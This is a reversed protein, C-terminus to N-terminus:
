VLLPLFLTALGLFFFFGMCDTVTTVFVGSALAPDINLRKLIVPVLYGAINAALMNLIMALGAVLGFWPNSAFWWAGFAVIIGIVIGSLLGVTIEKCFIQFANDKDVEGLSLGRCLITLSQTGANGGMGTVISMVSSLSVVKAITSEFNAVVAAAMVATFLNVILWPIRSKASELVTSDVREEGSMGAMLNIDETTEEEMVDMVDDIEIVGLMHYESDVVPMMYFGYKMFKKAVEEQDMNVDVTKVNPNVIDMIPTDFSSSVIDRLSIVGKLVKEKDLVYLYYTTDEEVQTQLYELTKLVTNNAKISIFETTMIGGATSPDYKLLSEIHTKDEIDLKSLVDAREEPDDLEGILDALEDDSMEDLIASQRDKLFTKLIEYQEDEDEEEYEYGDAYEPEYAADAAPPQQVPAAQPVPAEPALSRLKQAYLGRLAPPLAAVRKNLEEIKAANRQKQEETMHLVRASLEALQRVYAEQAAQQTGEKNEEM